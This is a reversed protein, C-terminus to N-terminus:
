STSKGHRLKSLSEGHDDADWSADYCSLHFEGFPWRDFDRRAVACEAKALQDSHFGVHFTQKV